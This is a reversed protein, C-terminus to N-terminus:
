QNINCFIAPYLSILFFIFALIFLGFFWYDFDFFKGFRSIEQSNEENTYRDEISGYTKLASDINPNNILRQLDTKSQGYNEEVKKWAKPWSRLDKKLVLFRLYIGFLIEIGFLLASGALIGKKVFVESNLLIPIIVGVIAISITVIYEIFKRLDSVADIYRNMHDKLAWDFTEKLTKLDNEAINKIEEPPPVRNM